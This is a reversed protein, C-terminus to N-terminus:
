IVLRVWQYFLSSILEPEQSHDTFCQGLQGVAGAVSNCLCDDLCLVRMSLSIGPKGGQNPLHKCVMFIGGIKVLSCPALELKSVRVCFPSVTPRPLIVTCSCLAYPFVKVDSNYTPVLKLSNIM